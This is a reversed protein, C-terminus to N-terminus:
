GESHDGTIVLAFEGNIKTLDVQDELQDLYYGAFQTIGSQRYTIELEDKRTTGRNVIASRIMGMFHTAMDNSQYYLGVKEGKELLNMLVPVVLPTDDTIEKLLM